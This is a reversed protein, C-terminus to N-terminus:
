SHISIGLLAVALVFLEAFAGLAAVFFCAAFVKALLPAEALWRLWAAFARAVPLRLALLVFAAGAPLALAALLAGLAGAFLAAWFLALL